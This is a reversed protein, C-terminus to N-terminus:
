VVKKVIIKQGIKEKKKLLYIIPIVPISIVNNNITNIVIPIQPFPRSHHWRDSWVYYLAKRLVQRTFGANSM